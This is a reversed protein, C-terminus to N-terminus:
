DWIFKANVDVNENGLLLQIISLNEKEVALYLPTRNFIIIIENSYINQIKHILQNKSIVYFIKIKFYWSFM